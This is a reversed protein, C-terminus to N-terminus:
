DLSSTSFKFEVGQLHFGHKAINDLAEDSIVAIRPQEGPKLDIEKFASWPGHEAPLNAGSKDETFGYIGVKGKFVYVRM